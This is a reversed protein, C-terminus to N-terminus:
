KGSGDVDEYVSSFSIEYPMKITVNAPSGVEAALWSGDFRVTETVISECMDDMADHGM